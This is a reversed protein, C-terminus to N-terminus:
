DNIRSETEVFNLCIDVQQDLGLYCDSILYLNYIKRAPEEPTSLALTTVTKNRVYGIRKLALLEGSDVVGILVWWGEDKAKSFKPAYARSDRSTGHQFLFPIIFMHCMNCMRVRGRTNRRTIEVVVVCDQAVGVDVWKQGDNEGGKDVQSSLDRKVLKDHKSSKLKWTMTVVPLRSLVDAM